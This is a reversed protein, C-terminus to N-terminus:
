DYYEEERNVAGPVTDENKETWNKSKYRSRFNQQENGKSREEPEQLISSKLTL